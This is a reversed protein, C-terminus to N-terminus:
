SSACSGGSTYTNCVTFNNVAWTSGQTVMEISIDITNSTPPSGKSSNGALTMVFHIPLQNAQGTPAQYDTPPAVCNVLEVPNPGSSIQAIDIVFSDLTPYTGNIYTVSLAGYALGLNRAVLAHCWDDAIALPVINSGASLPISVVGPLPPTEFDMRWVNQELVLHAMVHYVHPQGNLIRTLTVPVQASSSAIQAAGATQCSQVKGDVEDRLASYHIFEANGDAIQARASILEYAKAYDQHMLDACYTTVASVPAKAFDSASKIALAAGTGTLALSALILVGVAITRWRRERANLPSRSIPAAATAPLLPTAPAAPAYPPPAPPNLSTSPSAPRPPLPLHPPVPAVAAAQPDSTVMRSAAVPDGRREPRAAIAFALVSLVLLAGGLGVAAGPYQKILDFLLVSKPPQAFGLSISVLSTLILTALTLQARTWYAAALHIWHPMGVMRVTAASTTSVM